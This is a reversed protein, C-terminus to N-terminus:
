CVPVQVSSNPFEFCVLHLILKMFRPRHCGTIIIHLFGPFMTGKKIARSLRHILWLLLIIIRIISDSCTCLSHGHMCCSARVELQELLDKEPLSKLVDVIDRPEFSQTQLM